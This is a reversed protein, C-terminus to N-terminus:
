ALMSSYALAVTREVALPLIPAATPPETPSETPSASPGPPPSARPSTLTATGPLAEDADSAPSSDAMSWTDGAASGVSAAALPAGSAEDGVGSRSSSTPRSSRCRSSLEECSASRVATRNAILQRGGGFAALFLPPAVVPPAELLLLLPFEISAWLSDDRMGASGPPSPPLSVYPTEASAEFGTSAEPSGATSAVQPRPALLPPIFDGEYPPPLLLWLPVHTESSALGTATRGLAGARAPSLQSPAALRSPLAISRAGLSSRSRAVEAGSSM